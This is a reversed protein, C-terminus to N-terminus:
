PTFFAIVRAAIRSNGSLCVEESITPQPLHDDSDAMLQVGVGVFDSGGYEHLARQADGCGDRESRLWIHRNWLGHWQLGVRVSRAARGHMDAADRDHLAYARGDALDM